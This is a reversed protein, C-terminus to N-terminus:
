VEVPGLLYLGTPVSPNAVGPGWPSDVVRGWLCDEMLGWQFVVVRAWRGGAVPVLRSCGGPGISGQICSRWAQANASVSLLSASAVLTLFSIRIIYGGCGFQNM